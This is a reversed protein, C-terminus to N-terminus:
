QHGQHGRTNEWIGGLLEIFKIMVHIKGEHEGNREVKKFFSKLDKEFKENGMITKGKKIIKQSKVRKYNLKDIWTEKYM